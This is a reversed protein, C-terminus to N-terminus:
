QSKVFLTHKIQNAKHLLEQRESSLITVHGMKRGPKTHTKGYLHVFVNDMELVQELGEYFAPGHHNPAGLINVIAAPLIHDTNGLPYELMVRWLMDFQSSYCAEISHHGSNHVRPATENVWVKDEHDIFMEVAFIGPSKLARVVTLAIAEATWLVKQPLQAPSLQHSLLNLQPDFVMDVPAYIATDGSTSVAVMVAIEKRISVMKELVSPEDFALEFDAAQRLLQVGRGDYGGQALKHVAPLFHQHEEIGAKDETVVFESTPISHQLYFEKQWIKNKIIKLAAPSPIITVGEDELKQLADENVNEIEITLVDLQKGFNYVDDFNNIDGKVFHNCLHAAPCYPDNELVYTEVPYNAAQQLLMRGLQGGGLIGAKKM